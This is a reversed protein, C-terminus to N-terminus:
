FTFLSICLPLFIFTSSAMTGNIKLKFDKMLGKPKLSFNIIANLINTNSSINLFKREYVRVVKVVAGLLVIVIHSDGLQLISKDTGQIVNVLAKRESTYLTFHSSPLSM